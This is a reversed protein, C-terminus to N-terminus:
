SIFLIPYISIVLLIATSFNFIRLKYPETLFYRLRTGILIWTTAAIFHVACFTLAVIVVGSHPHSPPVYASLAALIVAWAKPNVWQFLAAQLFTIPTGKLEASDTDRPQAATAIKWVLFLLYVVSVSKLVLYIIPFQAFVQMLGIGVLVVMVVAGFLVGFFHPLTRRLGFNAGSAMLMFNNPGPTIAAVFVFIVLATILEYNM